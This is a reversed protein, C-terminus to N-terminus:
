ATSLILSSAFLSIASGDPLFLVCWGDTLDSAAQDASLCRHAAPSFQVGHLLLEGLSETPADRLAGDLALPRLLNDSLREARVMGQLYCLTLEREAGGGAWLSRTTFDACDCFVKALGAPTLPQDLRPSKRPHPGSDREENM